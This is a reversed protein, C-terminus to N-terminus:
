PAPGSPGRGESETRFRPARWQFRGGSVVVGGLFRNAGNLVALAAARVPSESEMVCFGVMHQVGGEVDAELSVAVAPTNFVKVTKLELLRVADREAGTLRLLGDVAARAGSELQASLGGSGEASGILTRGARQELEVRVSFAGGELPEVRVGVFKIRPQAREELSLYRIDQPKKSM